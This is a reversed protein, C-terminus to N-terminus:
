PRHSPVATRKSRRAMRIVAQVHENGPGHGDQISVKAQELAVLRWSCRVTQTTAKLATLKFFGTLGRKQGALKADADNAHAHEHIQM